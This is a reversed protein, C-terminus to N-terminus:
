IIDNKLHFLVLSWEKPTLKLDTNMKVATEERWLVERSSEELMAGLGGKQFVRPLARITPWISYLAYMFPPFFIITDAYRILSIIQYKRLGYLVLLIFAPLILCWLVVSFVKRKVLSRDKKMDFQVWNVFQEYAVHATKM